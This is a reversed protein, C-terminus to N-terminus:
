ESGLIKSAKKALEESVMIRTGASSTPFAGGADRSDILATVGNEKLLVLDSEAEPRTLYTKVSVLKTM